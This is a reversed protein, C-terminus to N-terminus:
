AAWPYSTDFLHDAELALRGYEREELRRWVEEEAQHVSIQAKGSLYRRVRALRRAVRRRGDNPPDSEECTPTSM